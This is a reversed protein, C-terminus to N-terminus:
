GRGGYINERSMDEDSLVPLKGRPQRAWAEFAAAREQPTMAAEPLRAILESVIQAAPKGQARAARELRAEQEPTLEITLTM